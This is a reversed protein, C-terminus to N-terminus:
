AKVLLRAGFIGACFLAVSGLITATFYVAARAYETDRLFGFTEGTFTSMTTFGGCIGTAIFLRASPSLGATNVSLGTVTGLLLCGLLNAWLTGHPFAPSIRQCTVTLLHRLVSGIFGGSGVALIAYLTKM